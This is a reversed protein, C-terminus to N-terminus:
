LDLITIRAAANAAYADAVQQLRPLAVGAVVGAGTLPASASLANEEDDTGSESDEFLVGSTGPIPRAGHEGQEDHWQRYRDFEDTFGSLPDQLANATLFATVELNHAGAELDARYIANGIWLILLALVVFFVAGYAFLIRYQLSRQWPWRAPPLPDDPFDPPPLQAPSAM